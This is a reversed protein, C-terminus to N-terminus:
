PIAGLLYTIANNLSTRFNKEKIYGYATLIAIPIALIVLAFLVVPYLWIKEKLTPPDYFDSPIM